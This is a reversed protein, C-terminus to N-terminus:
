FALGGGIVIRLGEDSKAIDFRLVTAAPTHFRFGIGYDDHLDKFDLDETEAAVKGTDYFLAMDLFKSPRWRYEAVLLMRNRDRFRFSTFGRLDSGGGLKPLLFFPVDEVDDVNTFSALAGFAFGQNGRLIPIHQALQVDIRRFDFGSQDRESFNTWDVRYFGGSTTYGPSERWDFEAFVNGQLYQFDLGLGPVPPPPFLVEISPVRGSEGPGINYDYYSFDGGVHFMDTVYVTESVGFSTPNYTFATEDEELSDNGIGFFAVEDAHIYQAHAVTHFRDEGFNPLKLSTALLQYGRISYAGHVDFFGTEAFPRRYGAGVAFGGGPYVSAFFPYFGGVAGLLRDQVKVLLSEAKNQKYPELHKAKEAQKEALKGARTEEAFASQYFIFASLLLLFKLFRPKM